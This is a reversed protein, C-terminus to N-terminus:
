PWKWAGERSGSSSTLGIKGSAASISKAGQLDIDAGKIEAQATGNVTVNAAKLEAKTNGDMELGSNADIKVSQDAHLDIESAKIETKETTSSSLSKGTVTVEKSVDMKFQDAQIGFEKEVNVSRNENVVLRSTKAEVYQEEKVKTIDNGEIYATRDATTHLRINAANMIIDGAGADLMIDGGNSRVMIRLKDVNYDDFGNDKKTSASTITYSQDHNQGTKIADTSLIIDYNPPPAQQGAAPQGAAPAAPAADAPAPQGPAPPAPMKHNYIRIFGIGEQTDHFEITHGKKTRFAKVENDVNAPQQGDPVLAGRTEVWAEDPMQKRTATASDHYLSGIIFPKEMNDNEFGVMVEEGIEPLIFCGKNNGGYPQAIRVWPYQKRATIHYVHNAVDDADDTPVDYNAAAGVDQWAFRVLVRGMKLPDVNDVVVARQASSRPYANIDMYPAFINDNSLNDKDPLVMATINNSMSGDSDWHITSSTVVMPGNRDVKVVSGVPLDLRYCVFSCKAMNDSMSRLMAESYNKLTDNTPGYPLRNPDDTFLAYDAERPQSGAISKGMLLNSNLGAFNPVESALDADMVDHHAVYRFNPNGAELEYNISSVLPSNNLDLPTATSPIKGFYLAKDAGKQDYYFFAGFRKALRAIFEYDTENYQIICPFLLDKFYSHIDVKKSITPVVPNPNHNPPNAPIVEELVQELKKNFFCRSHPAGQLASDESYAVCVVNLGKMSVKGISGMFFLKSEVENNYQTFVQCNVPQAMLSNVITYNKTNDTKEIKNRRLTFTLENPKLLEKTLEFEVLSYGDLTDSFNTSLDIRTNGIKFANILCMTM